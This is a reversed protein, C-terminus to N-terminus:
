GTVVRGEIHHAALLAELKYRVLGLGQPLHMAQQARCPTQHQVYPAGQPILGVVTCGRLDHLPMNSGVGSAPHPRRTTTAIRLGEPDEQDRDAKSRDPEATDHACQAM